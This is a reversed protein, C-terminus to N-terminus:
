RGLWGERDKTARRRVLRRILRRSPPLRTRVGLLWGALGSPPGRLRPRVALLWRTPLRLLALRRGLVALSRLLALLGGLVALPRLLALM